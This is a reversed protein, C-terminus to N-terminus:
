RIIAITGKETVKINNSNIFELIWVYVGNDLDVGKYKGDWEDGENTTYFILTGWRNFVSFSKLQQM